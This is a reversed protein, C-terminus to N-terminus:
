PWNKGDDEELDPDVFETFELDDDEDTAATKRKATAYGVYSDITPRRLVLTDGEVELEAKEEFGMERLLSGPIVVGRADGMSRISVEMADEWPCVMISRLALAAAPLLLNKQHLYAVAPL